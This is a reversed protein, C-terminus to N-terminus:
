LNKKKQKIITLSKKWLNKQKTKTKLAKKKGNLILIKKKM